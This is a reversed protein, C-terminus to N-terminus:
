MGIWSAFTKSWEYFFIKRGERDTWWGEPRFHPDPAAVVRIETGPALWRRFVRGSRRTHYTSTVLILRKIGRRSLEPALSISEDKTSLARSNMAVFLTRPYGHATAYNIALDSEEVGYVPGPGSVFVVPAFGQVALQAAKLIRNGNYDGALVLVGQAQFPPGTAVLCEGAARLWIRHTALLAILVVALSLFLFHRRRSTLM